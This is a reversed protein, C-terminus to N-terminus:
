LIWMSETPKTLQRKTIISVAQRRCPCRRGKWVVPWDGSRSRITHIRPARVFVLRFLACSVRRCGRGGPRLVCSTTPQRGDTQGARSTHAGGAPTSRPLPLVHSRGSDALGSAVARGGRPSVATVSGVARVFLHGLRSGVGPASRRARATSRRAPVGRPGACTPPKRAGPGVPGAPPRGAARCTAPTPPGRRSRRAGSGPGPTCVRDRRHRAPSAVRARCAPRERPPVPPPGALARQQSGPRGSGRRWAARRWPAGHLQGSPPPAATARPPM